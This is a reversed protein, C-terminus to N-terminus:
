KGFLGSRALARAFVVPYKLEEAKDPGSAFFAVVVDRMPSVYLGQGGYGHKFFDGDAWVYDWQYSNHTPRDTGFLKVAETGFKAADFIAPRSAKQIAKLHAAPVLQVATVTKWSPTFLLGFRALDRVTGSIYGHSAPAGFPAPSMMLTADSEAGIQRWIRESVVEAYPKGTVNEIVWSLVFTNVSSYEFAQGSPRLRKLSAVYEYTSAPTKPTKPMTGLSAEYRGYPTDADDYAKPDDIELGDMGSAMDLVDRLPTRKWDSKALEPVYTEVFKTADVLKEDELMAVLTSAIVKSVSWFIHKDFPRMQPYREFVIKGGHLVVFGDMKPLYKELTLKTGAPAAEIKGVGPDAGAKLEAIPGARHITAHPFFEPMHTYVYRSLDGGDWCTKLDFGKRYKRSEELAAPPAGCLVSRESARASTVPVVNSALPALAAALLFDRRAVSSTSM